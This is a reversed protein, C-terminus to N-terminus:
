QFEPIRLEPNSVRALKWDWPKASMRRWELQFPTALSNVREKMAAMVESDDGNIIIKAKWYGTHGAVSLAPNTATLRATRLYGFVERTREVVLPRDNGWQDRYDNSIFFAFRSWNRKEISRLLNDTHCRIQHEPRWLWVLFLGAVCAVILGGGVAGRFSIRV